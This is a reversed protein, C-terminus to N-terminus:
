IKILSSQDCYQYHLNDRAVFNLEGFLLSSVRKSIQKKKATQVLASGYEM